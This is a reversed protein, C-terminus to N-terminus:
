ATTHYHYAFSSIIHYLLIYKYKIYCTICEIYKYYLLLTFM